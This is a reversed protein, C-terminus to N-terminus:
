TVTDTLLRSGPKAELWLPMWFAAGPVLCQGAGGWLLYTNFLSVSRQNM